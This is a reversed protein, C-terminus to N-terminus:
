STVFFSLYKSMFIKRITRSLIINCTGMGINVNGLIHNYESNIFLNCFGFKIVVDFLREFIIGKESQSKCTNLIDYVNDFNIIYDIFDKITMNTFNM